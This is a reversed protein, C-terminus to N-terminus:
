KGLLKKVSQPNDFSYKSEGKFQLRGQTRIGVGVVERNDTKRLKSGSRAARVEINIDGNLQPLDLKAPNDKLFFAGRKGIQIYNTGKKAYHNHIFDTGAKIKFNLPRLMGKEVAKDWSEKTVQGPPFENKLDENGPFKKLYKLLNDLAEKRKILQKAVVSALTEDEPKEKWSFKGDKFLVSTGGMQANDQKVELGYDKGKYKFDADPLNSAAGAPKTIKGSFGAQGISSLITKEYDFGGTPASHQKKPSTDTKKASVSKDKTKDKVKVPVLKDDVTKAVVKGTKNKWKGWGSSKLGLKHAKEVTKVDEAVQLQDFAPLLFPYEEEENDDVEYNSKKKDLEKNILLILQQETIRM